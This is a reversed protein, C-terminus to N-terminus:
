RGDRKSRYVSRGEFYGPTVGNLFTFPQVAHEAAGAITFVGDARSGTLLPNRNAGVAVVGPM